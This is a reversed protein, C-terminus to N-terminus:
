AALARAARIARGLTAYIPSTLEGAATTVIARYGTRTEEIYINM